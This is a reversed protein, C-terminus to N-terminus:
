NAVFSCTFTEYYYYIRGTWGGGKKKEKCFKASFKYVKPFYEERSCISKRVEIDKLSNIRPERKKSSGIPIEQYAM